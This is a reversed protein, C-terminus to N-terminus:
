GPRSNLSESDIDGTDRAGTGVFVLSEHGAGMSHPMKL